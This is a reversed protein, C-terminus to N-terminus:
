SMRNSYRILNSAHMEVLRWSSAAELPRFVLNDLRSEPKKQVPSVFFILQQLCVFLRSKGIQQWSWRGQCLSQATAVMWNFIIDMHIYAAISRLSRTVISIGRYLLISHRLYLFVYRELSNSNRWSPGECLERANLASCSVDCHRSFLLDWKRGLTLVPPEHM